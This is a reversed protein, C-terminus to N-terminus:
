KERGLWFAEVEISWCGVKAKRMEELMRRGIALKNVKKAKDRLSGCIKAAEPGATNMELNQPERPDMKLTYNPWKPTHNM